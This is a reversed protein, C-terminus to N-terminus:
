DYIPDWDKWIAEYGNRHIMEAIKAPTRDDHIEFQELAQQEASYGGPDTKSGASMTTIGLKMVHDRFFESERTSLSLEVDEDFIRYAAILQVLQRDTMIDKPEFCGANPRLRPFSITYRSKWYTKELYRLHAAVFFAEVRWDELGILAGLGIKKMGARGLRDQTSIRYEFNSKKGKTHYTKYEEKHYTEQYILVTNVGWEIMKKYDEESLPQIEISISSFHPRILKIMKEFYEMGVNKNSEGTVLLIHEYGMKKIVEIEKLLQEENLTLREIKNDFSFGCYTCINQCENSLYLPIYLQITNGFRKKTIKHSVEAMNKLYKEAAPSVLAIFDSLNRKGSNSIARLVDEETKQYIQTKIEDWNYTNFEDIFM